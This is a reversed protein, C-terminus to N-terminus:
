KNRGTKQILKRKVSSNRIINFTFFALGIWILLFCIAHASTFEEHFIFVGIFLQLTPSIYQIFGLTSYPLIKVAQAFLILPVATVIGGLILLIVSQSSLESIILEGNSTIYFLYIVALPTVLLTELTLSQIAPLNAKKKVMGYIGMSIALIFAIIPFSGYSITFYTVGAFAFLAALKELRNLKEKLFLVGLLVNVLPNIYYGLSSEVIFQNNVAYIYVGWNITILIGAIGMYYVNQKNKMVKWLAKRNALLCYGALFVSSWLIRNALILLSSVDALLHWYLLVTGWLMYCLIAYFLGKSFPEQSINESM